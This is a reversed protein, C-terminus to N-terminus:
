ANVPSSESSLEEIVLPAYRDLTDLLSPIQSYDESTKITYEISKNANIMSENGVFSLTSKYKHSVERLAIWDNEELYQHMKALETPIEVILTSVVERIIAEDGDAMLLLYELNLHEFKKESM